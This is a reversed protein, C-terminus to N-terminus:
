ASRLYVKNLYGIARLCLLRACADTQYCRSFTLCFAPASPSATTMLTRAPNSAKCTLRQLPPLAYGGHMNLTESM